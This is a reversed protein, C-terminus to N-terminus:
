GKNQHYLYLRILIHILLPIKISLMIIFPHKMFLILHCFLHFMIYINNNFYKNLIKYIYFVVKLYIIPM